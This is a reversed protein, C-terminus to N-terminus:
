KNIDRICFILYFHNILDKSKAKYQGCRMGPHVRDAYQFGAKGCKNGKFLEEPGAWWHCRKWFLVLLFWQNVGTCSDCSSLTFTLCCIKILRPLMNKSTNSIICMSSGFLLTSIMICNRCVREQIWTTLHSQHQLLAYQVTSHCNELRSLECCYCNCELSRSLMCLLNTKFQDDRASNVSQSLLLTMAGVLLQWGDWVSVSGGSKAMRKAPVWGPIFCPHQEQKIPRRPFTFGTFLIDLFTEQLQTPGVKMM